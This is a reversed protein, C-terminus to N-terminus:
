AILSRVMGRLGAVADAPHSHSECLHLLVVFRPQRKVMSALSAAFVSLASVKSVTSDGLQGDVVICDSRHTYMFMWAQFRPTVLLLNARGLDIDDLDNSRRLIEEVDNALFFPDELGVSFLMDDHLLRPVPPPM